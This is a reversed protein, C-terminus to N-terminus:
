DIPCFEPRRPEQSTSINVLPLSEFAKISSIDNQVSEFNDVVAISYYDKPKSFLPVGGEILSLYIDGIYNVSGPEVTFLYASMYDSYKGVKVIGYIGKKAKTIVLQPNKDNKIVLSKFSIPGRRIEIDSNLKLEPIELEKGNASYFGLSKGATENHIRMVVYGEDERLNELSLDEQLLGMSACSSFLIFAVLLLLSCKKM